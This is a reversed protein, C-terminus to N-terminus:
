DILRRYHAWEPTCIGVEVNNINGSTEQLCIMQGEATWGLFMVVHANEGPRICIDGPLLEDKGM